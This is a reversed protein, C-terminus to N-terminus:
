VQMRSNMDIINDEQPVINGERNMELTPTAYYTFTNNQLQLKKTADDVTMQLLDKERTLDDLYSSAQAGFFSKTWQVFDEGWSLQLKEDIKQVSRAAYFGDIVAFIIAEAIMVGPGLEVSANEVTAFTSYIELTLPVVNITLIATDGVIGVLQDKDGAQYAKSRAVLDAIVFGLYAKSLLKGGLYATGGKLLNNKKLLNQGWQVAVDGAVGVGLMGALIGSEKAMRTFDGDMASGIIGKIMQLHIAKNVVKSIDEVKIDNTPGFLVTTILAVESNSLFDLPLDVGSATQTNSAQNFSEYAQFIIPPSDTVWKKQDYELVALKELYPGAYIPTIKISHLDKYTYQLAGYVFYLFHEESLAFKLIEENSVSRANTVKLQHYIIDIDTSSLHDTLVTKAMFLVYFRDYDQGAILINHTKIFENTVQDRLETGQITSFYGM